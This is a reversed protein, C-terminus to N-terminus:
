KGELLKIGYELIKLKMETHDVVASSAAYASSAYDYASSAYAAYAAFSAAYAAYAASSAASSAASAAYAYASASASYAAAYASSAAIKNEKTPNKLYKKAAKIANRPVNDNPYEKEYIYLVQEASYIAYQICQKRKMLRTILWNAWDYKKQNILEKVVEIGDIKNQNLFWAMGGICANKRALWEKTLKM